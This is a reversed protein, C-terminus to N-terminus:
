SILLVECIINAKMSIDLWMVRNTATSNACM